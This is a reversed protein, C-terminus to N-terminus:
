QKKGFLGFYELLALVAAVPVAIWLSNLLIDAKDTIGFFIFVIFGVPIFALVFIQAYDARYAVFEAFAPMRLGEPETKKLYKSVESVASEFVAKNRLVYRYTIKKNAIPLHFLFLLPYEARFGTFNAWAEVNNNIMFGKPSFSIRLGKFTLGYIIYVFFSIMVALVINAVILQPVQGFVKYTAYIISVDILIFLLKVLVGADHRIVITVIGDMDLKTEM